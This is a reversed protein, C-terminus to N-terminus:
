VHTSCKNQHIKLLLIMTSFSVCAKLVNFYHGSHKHSHFFKGEQWNIFIELCCFKMEGWESSQNSILTSAPQQYLSDGQNTLQQENHGLM